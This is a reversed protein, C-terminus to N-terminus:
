PTSIRFDLEQTAQPGDRDARKTSAGLTHMDRIQTFAPLGTWM